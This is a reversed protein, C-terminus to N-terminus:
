VCGGMSEGYGSSGAWFIIRRLRTTGTMADTISSLLSGWRRGGATAGRGGSRGFVAVHVCSPPVCGAEGDGGAQGIHLVGASGWSVAGDARVEWDGGSVAGRDLPGAGYAGVVALGVGWGACGVGADDCEACGDGGVWAARGEGGLLTKRVCNIETISAGSHVLARNFGVTDELSISQDLPLEMMASAGGSVLFFCFTEEGCTRAEEIAGFRRRPGMSPLRIRCRIGGRSLFCVWEAVGGFAVPAILVGGVRCDVPVQVHRLFARLM